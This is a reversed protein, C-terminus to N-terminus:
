IEVGEAVVYKIVPILVGTEEIDSSRLFSISTITARPEQEEVALYIRSTLLGEQMPQPADIFDPDLGFSRDLAAQMNLSSVIHKLNQEISEKGTLGFRMPASGRIVIENETM